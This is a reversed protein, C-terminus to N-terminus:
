ILFSKYSSILYFSNTYTVDDLFYKGSAFYNKSYWEINTFAYIWANYESNLWNTVFIYM